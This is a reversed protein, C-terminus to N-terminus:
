WARCASASPQSDHGAVFAAAFQERARLAHQRAAHARGHAREAGHRARRPEHRARAAREELVGVAVPQEIEHVRPSRQDEPMRVGLDNGGHLIGGAAPEGVAGGAEALHQEGFLNGGAVGADLLHAERRRAGFGAHRRDPERAADGAAVPQDLEGAAVVAVAVTQWGDDAPTGAAM